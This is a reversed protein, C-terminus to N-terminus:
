GAYQPTGRLDQAIQDTRCRHVHGFANDLIMGTPCQFPNAIALGGVAGVTTTVFITRASVDGSSIGWFSLISFPGVILFAFLAPPWQYGLAALCLLVVVNITILIANM